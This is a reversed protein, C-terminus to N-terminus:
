PWSLTIIIANWCRSFLNFCCLWSNSLYSYSTKGLWITPYGVNSEM